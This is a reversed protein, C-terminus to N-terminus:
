FDGHSQNIKKLINIKKLFQVNLSRTRTKELELDSMLTTPTNIDTKM